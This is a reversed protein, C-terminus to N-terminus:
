TVKRLREIFRDVKGNQEEREQETYPRTHEIKLFELAEILGRAEAPDRPPLPFVGEELSEWAKQAALLQQGRKEAEQLEISGLGEM